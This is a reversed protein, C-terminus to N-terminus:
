ARYPDSAAQGSLDTWVRQGTRRDRHLIRNDQPDTITDVPVRTGIVLHWAETASSNV